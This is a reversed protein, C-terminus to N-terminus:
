DIKVFRGSEGKDTHLIYIGATLDSVDFTRGSYIWKKVLSGSLTYVSIKTGWDTEIDLAKKTVTSLIKLMNGEPMVKEVSTGMNAGGELVIWGVQDLASTGSAGASKERQKMFTVGESTLGSYRLNSTFGDNSTLLTCYFAPESYIEGFSLEAKHSLEGVVDATKSVKIKKGNVTTVGPIVAFYCLNERGFSNTQNRERTLHVEFGKKTVNRVRAFFPYTAKASSPAVFVVPAETFPQKFVVTKWEDNVSRVDGAEVPLDGWNYNGKRAVIYPANEAKPLETLRQYEWPSYKFRFSNVTTGQLHYSLLSRTASSFGGFVVAPTENYSTGEEFFFYKWALDTLSAVGCRIDGSGMVVPMDISMENSYKVEDGSKIKVRYTYTHSELPKLEESFENKLQGSGSALEEFDGDDVKRELVYNDTLEGNYDIWSVEAFRSNLNYTATLEPTVIQYTPVVAKEPNYAMPAHLDRYYEGAPTLKPDITGGSTYKGEENKGVVLAREDGVWNYISYREIFSCTDLVNLISKLDNLQKQQKGAEDSPWTEHTWNAGNNWETIWIPLGTRDHIAKLKQYWKEPSINGANDTVVQAGGSGGWYAHVAVYDVRYNRKKCEDLFTYLWNLNDAIAPTGLRLGSEMMQPWQSIAREVTANAQEPRDPENYGLLHTVNSKSNIEPFGPWGWNQKIPVFETNDLSERDASWSYYWTSATLDIEDYCGVGSSCWGKKSVWEWPFCRIYSVKGNLEHPLVPIEIDDKDAIFVRSYGQGNTENALTAMYGRKLKFSRIANDFSELNQYCSDLLYTRSEESYNEGTFVQLPEYETGQPIVVAGHLYVDVRANVGPELAKGSIKVMSAYKEIVESPRINDFFLWADQSILNVSANKLPIEGTLHMDVIGGLDKNENEISVVSQTERAFLSVSSCFIVFLIISLFRM